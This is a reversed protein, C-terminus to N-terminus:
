FVGSSQGYGTQNAEMNAWLKRIFGTTEHSKFINYSAIDLLGSERFNNTILIYPRQYQKVRFKFQEKVSNNFDLGYSEEIFNSIRNIYADLNNVIDAKDILSEKWTLGFRIIPVSYVFYFLENYEAEYSDSVVPEEIVDFLGESISLYFEKAAYAPATQMIAKSLAEEASLGDVILEDRCIKVAHIANENAYSKTHDLFPFFRIAADAVAQMEPSITNITRSDKEPTENKHTREFAPLSGTEFYKLSDTIAKETAESILPMLNTSFADCKDMLVNDLFMGVIPITKGDELGYAYTESINMFYSSAVKLTDFGFGDIVKQYINNFNFYNIAHLIKKARHPDDNNKHYKRYTALVVGSCYMFLHTLHINKDYNADEFAATVRKFVIHTYVNESLNLYYPEPSGQTFNVAMKQLSRKFFM